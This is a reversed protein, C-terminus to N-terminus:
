PTVFQLHLPRRVPVPEGHPTLAGTATNIAFVEIRDSDRPAALLWRGSPDITMHRPHEGTRAHGLPRLHGDAPDIAYIAISDFRPAGHGRNSVYLFRGGPHVCVEATTNEGKFGAPLTPATNIVTFAGTVADYAYATVTADLEGNVYVWRGNPHFKLHRPGAGPATRVPSEVRRLQPGTPDLRFRAILDAGLDCAFYFRGAPDPTISHPHTERQRTPHVSSGAFPEAPGPAGLTGDANVPLAVVAAGNYSAGVAFRGDPSLSLHALGATGTSRRGLEALAGTAPNVSYAVICGGANGPQGTIATTYLHRQDASAAFFGPAKVDSAVVRPTGLRGTTSDFDAVLVGAGGQDTVSGITVFTPSAIMPSAALLFSVIRAPPTM